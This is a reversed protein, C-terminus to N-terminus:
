LCKEILDQLESKLSVSKWGKSINFSILLTDKELTVKNVDGFKFIVNAIVANFAEKSLNNTAISNITENLANLVKLAYYKSTNDPIEDYKFTVAIENELASQFDLELNKIEKKLQLMTPIDSESPTFPIKGDSLLYIYNHVNGICISSISHFQIYQLEANNEYWNCLLVVNKDIDYNVFYGSVNGTQTSIIVKPMNPKEQAREKDSIEQLIKLVQSIELVPLQIMTKFDM